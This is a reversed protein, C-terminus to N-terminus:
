NTDEESSMLLYIGNSQMNFSMLYIPVALDLEVISHVKRQPM